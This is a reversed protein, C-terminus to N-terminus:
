YGIYHVIIAKGTLVSQDALHCLFVDQTEVPQGYRLVIARALHHTM